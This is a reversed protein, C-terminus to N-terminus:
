NNRNNKEIIELKELVDHAEADLYLCYNTQNFKIIAIDKEVGNELVIIKNAESNIADDFEKQSEILSESLKAYLSLANRYAYYDGKSNINQRVFERCKTLIEANAKEYFAKM